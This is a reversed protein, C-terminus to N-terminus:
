GPRRATVRIVIPMPMDRPPPERLTLGALVENRIADDVVPDGSSNVLQVATVRGSADSRLRVEVRVRANRTKRNARLAEEIQAQVISAYWGWRSGGGGGGGLIGNGGPRGALNFSDGPGEAEQDLGLPGEPPAEAKKPPEDKPQEQPKEQKVEPEKITPQEIMKPQEIERPPPPPPPPPQITVMQFEQVKRPPEPDGSLILLAAVGIVAVAVVGAGLAVGHQRLFGPRNENREVM